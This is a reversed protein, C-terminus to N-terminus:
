AKAEVMNQLYIKSCSKTMTLKIANYMACQLTNAAARFNSNALINKGKYLTDKEIQQQYMTTISTYVTRHNFM